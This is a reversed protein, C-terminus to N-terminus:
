STGSLELGMVGTFETFRVVVTWDHTGPVLTPFGPETRGSGGGTEGASFTTEHVPRDLGDLIRVTVSGATVSGGWAVRAVPNPNVWEHSEDATKCSVVGGYAFRGPESEVGSVDSCGSADFAARGVQEACGSIVAM